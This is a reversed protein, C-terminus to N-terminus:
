LKRLDYPTSQYVFYNLWNTYLLNGHARWTVLPKKEPDDDPYYNEPVHIPLNAALDRRYEADLTLPDYEAHGM